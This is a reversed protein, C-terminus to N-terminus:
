NFIINEILNPIKIIQDCPIKIKKLNYSKYHNYLLSSYDISIKIIFVLEIKITLAHPGNRHLHILIERSVRQDKSWGQYNHTKPDLEVLKRKCYKKNTYYSYM